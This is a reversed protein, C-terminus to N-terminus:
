SYYTFSIIVYFEICLREIVWLDILLSLAKPKCEWSECDCM